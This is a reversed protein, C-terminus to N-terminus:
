EEKEPAWQKTSLELDKFRPDYKLAEIRNQAAQETDFAGIGPDDIRREAPQEETTSKAFIWWKKRYEATTKERWARQAKLKEAAQAQKAKGGGNSPM